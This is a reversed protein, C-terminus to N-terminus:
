PFRKLSILILLLRSRGHQFIMSFVIESSPEQIPEQTLEQSPEDIIVMTDEQKTDSPENSTQCALYLFMM